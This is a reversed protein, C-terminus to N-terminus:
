DESQRNRDRQRRWSEDPRPRALGSQPEWLDYTGESAACGHDLVRLRQGPRLPIRGTRAGVHLWGPQMVVLTQGCPPAFLEPYPAVRSRFPANGTFERAEEANRFFTQLPAYM